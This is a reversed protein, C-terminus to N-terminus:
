DAFAVTCQAPLDIEGLRSKVEGIQAAWAEPDPSDPILSFALLEAKTMAAQLQANTALFETSPEDGSGTILLNAADTAGQADQYHRRATDGAAQVGASDGSRAAGSATQAAAVVSAVHRTATCLEGM